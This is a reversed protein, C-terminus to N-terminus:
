VGLYVGNEGGKRESLRAAVAPNFSGNLGFVPAKRGGRPAFLTVLARAIDTADEGEGHLGAAMRAPTPLVAQRAALVALLVRLNPVRTGRGISEGFLARRGPFGGMDM